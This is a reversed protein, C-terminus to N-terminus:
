SFDMAFSSPKEVHTPQELCGESSFTIHSFVPADVAPMDVPPLLPLRGPTKVPVALLGAHHYDVAPFTRHACALAGGEHEPRDSM